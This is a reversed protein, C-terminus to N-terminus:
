YGSRGVSEDVPHVAEDPTARAGAATLVFPGGCSLQYTRRFAQVFRALVLRRRRHEGVDSARLDPAKESLTQSRLEKFSGYLQVAASLAM